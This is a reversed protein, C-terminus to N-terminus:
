EGAHAAWSWQWPAARPADNPHLAWAELTWGVPPRPWDSPWTWVSSSAHADAQVTALWLVHRNGDAAPLELPGRAVLALQTGSGVGAGHHILVKAVRQARGGAVGSPDTQAAQQDAIGFSAACSDGAPSVSFLGGAVLRASGNPAQGIAEVNSFGPGDIGPDLSNWGAGDWIAIRRMPAGGATLFNGGVALEPGRGVDVEAMALVAGSLVGGVPEFAGNRWRALNPVVDGGAYTFIGGVYLAPGSGDDHVRLSRVSPDNPGGVGGGVDRWISGNWRALRNVTQGMLTSFSGGAYLWPGDGDDYVQLAYIFPSFEGNGVPHWETGDWRAINGVNRPGAESFRGAAILQPGAADPFTALAYVVGSGFGVPGLGGGVSSWSIGDWRAIYATGPTYATKFSGGAYLANGSGDDHVLLAYTSAATHDGLGNGLPHFVGESWRTIGRLQTGQGYKFAGGLYLEEGQGFDATAFARVAGDLGGDVAQWTEGAKLLALGRATKGGVQTFAGGLVLQPGAASEWEGFALGGENPSNAFPMWSQGNWRAAHAMPAGGANSFIGAVCLEPGEPGQRMAFARVTNNTGSLLPAWNSGDWFAVRAAPNGGATAFTGGAFLRPGKGLDGVFLAYVVPTSMGGVGGGLPSWLGGDFSAIYGVNQGGATAFNGGAILREGQADPWITLARVTGAPGNPVEAWSEGDWRALGYSLSGSGGFSGGAYLKQGQGDDYLALAYVPGSLGAGLASWRKGDWVAVGKTAVGGAWDFDGGAVLHIGTESPLKLLSWVTGPSGDVLRVGRGLLSWSTGDWRAVGSAPVGGASAFSGGFFLATGRGDDHTAISVIGKDTGPIGGFTPLWDGESDFGFSPGQGLLACTALAAWLFRTASPSRPAQCHAERVFQAAPSEM